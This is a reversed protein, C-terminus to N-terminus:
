RPMFGDSSTFRADMFMGEDSILPVNLHDVDMAKAKGQLRPNTLKKAAENENARLSLAMPTPGSAPGMDTTDGDADRELMTTGHAVSERNDMDHRLAKVQIKMERWLEYKNLGDDDDNDDHGDGNGGGSGGVLESRDGAIVLLTAVFAEQLYAFSFEDTISAIAPCLKKPFEIKVNRKALKSRWYSCYLIRESESPLPFLYKRDVRSPRSSLGPDLKDLHNTSAVMFIGDNNETSYSLDSSVQELSLPTQARLLTGLGDVENFFYSRTKVTVVTDIDEFILLCPAMFRAQQFVQRINYTTPASKVYLSPISGGTKEFLSNM